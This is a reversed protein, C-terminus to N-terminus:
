YDRMVLPLYIEYGLAAVEGGGWFGGGVLYAGGMALGAEPQGATGGLSYAGGSSFTGGGGDVTSWSLDYDGGSQALAVSALLLLLGVGMLRTAGPICRKRM